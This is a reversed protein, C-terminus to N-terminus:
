SLKLMTEAVTDLFGSEKLAKLRECLTVFEQLRKMETTHEDALFFKRLDELDKRITNVESAIGMRAGRLEGIYNKYVPKFAEIIKNIEAMQDMVHASMELTANVIEATTKPTQPAEMTIKESLDKVLEEAGKTFKM